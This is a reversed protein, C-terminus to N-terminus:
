QSGAAITILSAAVAAAALWGARARDRGAQARAGRLHHYCGRALLVTAALWSLGIV